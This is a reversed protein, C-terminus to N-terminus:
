TEYKAVQEKALLHISAPTQGDQTLFNHSFPTQRNCPLNNDIVLVKRMSRGLAMAASLGAYSGGIIIVEFSNTKKTM